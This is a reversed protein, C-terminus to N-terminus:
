AVLFIYFFSPFYVSLSEPLEWFTCTENVSGQIITAVATSLLNQYAVRVVLKPLNWCHLKM